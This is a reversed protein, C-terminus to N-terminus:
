RAHAVERSVANPGDYERDPIESLASLTAKDAGKQQAHQILDNKRVPYDIDSLFKQMQVPNVNQAVDSV